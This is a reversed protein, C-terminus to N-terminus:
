ENEKNMHTEIRQMVDSLNKFSTKIHEDNVKVEIRLENIMEKIGEVDRDITSIAIRNNNTDKELADIDSSLTFVFGVLLIFPSVIGILTKTNNLIKTPSDSM